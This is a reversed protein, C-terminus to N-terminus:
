RSLGPAGESICANRCSARPDPVAKFPCVMLFLSQLNARAAARSVPLRVRPKAGLGACAMQLGMQQLADQVLMRFQKPGAQLM